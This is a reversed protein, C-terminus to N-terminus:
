NKSDYKVFELLLLVWGILLLLGGIPTLFAITTADIGLVDDLVLVYISGSFLVTGILFFYFLRRLHKVNHHLLSGLMLFVFAHYMQYRVGTNFSDINNQAVLNKLGHAGFAGLLVAVFGFVAGTILVKRQM